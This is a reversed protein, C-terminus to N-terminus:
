KQILLLYQLIEVGGFSTLPLLLAKWFPQQSLPLFAGRRENQIDEFLLELQKLAKDSIAPDGRAAILKRTMRALAKARAGEATNRLCYASYAAYTAGTLFIIALSTPTHWNDFLQSRAILGIALIIFPYYVLKATSETRKAIFQIDIWDDAYRAVKDKEMGLMNSFAKNTNEPYETEADMMNRILAEFLRVADVVCFLLLTYLTVFLILLIQHAMLAGSGRLPANPLDWILTLGLGALVYLAVVPVVRLLRRPWSALVLYDGLVTEASIAARGPEASRGNEKIWGYLSWPVQRSHTGG